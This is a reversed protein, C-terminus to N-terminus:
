EDAGPWDRITVYPNIAMGQTYLIADTFNMQGIIPDAALSDYMTFDIGDAFDSVGVPCSGAFAHDVAPATHQESNFSSSIRASPANSNQNPTTAPLRTDPFPGGLTPAKQAVQDLTSSHSHDIHSNGNFPEEHGMFEVGLPILKLQLANIHVESSKVLVHGEEKLAGLRALIDHTLPTGTVTEELPPGIWGEGNQLRRYLEQVGTVLLARQTVLM